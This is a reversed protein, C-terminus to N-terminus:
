SVVESEVVKAKLKKEILKTLTEDLTKGIESMIKQERETLEGDVILNLRVTFGSGKTMKEERGEAATITRM